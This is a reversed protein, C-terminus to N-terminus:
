SNKELYAIDREITTLIATISKKVGEINISYMQSSFPCKCKLVNYLHNYAILSNLKKSFTGKLNKKYIDPLSALICCWVDDIKNKKIYAKGFFKFDVDRAIVNQLKKLYNKLETLDEM